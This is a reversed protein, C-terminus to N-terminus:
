ANKQRDEKLLEHIRSHAENAVKALVLLDDRRFSDTNDWNGEKDRYARQLTTNYRAGKPTPNKWITATISGIRVRDVPQHTTETAM